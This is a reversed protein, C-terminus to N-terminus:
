YRKHASTWSPPYDTMFHQVMGWAGDMEVGKDWGYLKIRVAKAKDANAKMHLHLQFSNNQFDYYLTGGAANNFFSQTPVYKNYDLARFTPIEDAYLKEDYKSRENYVKVMMNLRHRYGAVKKQYEAKLAPHEGVVKEWDRLASQYAEEGLEYATNATTMLGRKEDAGRALRELGTAPMEEATALAYLSVASFYDNAAKKNQEILAPSVFADYDPEDGPPTPPDPLNELDGVLAVLQGGLAAKLLPRTDLRPGLREEAFKLLLLKTKDKVLPLSSHPM